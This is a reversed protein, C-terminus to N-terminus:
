SLWLSWGGLCGSLYRQAAALLQRLVGGGWRGALQSQISCRSIHEPPGRSAVRPKEARLAQGASEKNKFRALNGTPAARRHPKGSFPCAAHRVGAHSSPPLRRHGPGPHPFRSSLSGPCACHPLTGCASELDRSWPGFLESLARLSCVAALWGWSSGHAKVELRWGIVKQEGGCEVGFM